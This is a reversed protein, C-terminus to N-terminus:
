NVVRTELEKPTMGTRQEVEVVASVAAVFDQTETGEPTLRQCMEVVRKIDAPQVGLAEIGQFASLGLIAQSLSLDRKRLEVRIERLADVEDSFIELDDFIGNKLDTINAVVSGKSIGSKAVIQQYSYGQIFYRVTNMKKRATLAPM